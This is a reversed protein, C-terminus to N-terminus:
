FKGLVTLSSRSFDVSSRPSPGPTFHTLSNGSKDKMANSDLAMLNFTRGGPGGFEKQIIQWVDEALQCDMSTLSHSPEDAPNEKTRIYSLHLCVNLNMTTAFLKKMVINLSSSKVGQNNWAHIVAQNDVVADVRANRVKDRCSLLSNHTAM